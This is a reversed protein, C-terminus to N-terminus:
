RFFRARPGVVILTGGGVDAPVAADAGVFRLAATHHVAVAIGGPGADIAVVDDRGAGRAATGVGADLDFMWGDTGDSSVDLAGLALAGDFGGAVLTDDGHRAAGTPRVVGDGDIIRVAPSGGRRPYTAVATALQGRQREVADGFRAERRLTAIVQVDREDLLVAVASEVDVGGFSELMSVNARDADMIAVFGDAYPSEPIAARLQQGRLEADITFSGAIAISTAARDLASVADAGVGGVRHLWSPAGDPGLRTVFGDTGGASTVVLDGVRLTGAFSGGVLVGDDGAVLAAVTVWQTSGLEAHWRVAGSADDLAVVSAGPDGRFRLPAADAAAGPLAGDGAGVTAAYVIGAALECRTARGPLAVEWRVAGGPALRSVGGGGVSAGTLAVAVGGADDVALGSVAVGDLDQHWAVFPPAASM